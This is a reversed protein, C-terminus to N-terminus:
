ALRIQPNAVTYAIDALLNMMGVVGNLPTRIEHSMNAVFNSKMASAERAAIVDRESSRLVRRGLLLAAAAVLAFAIFLLWPVWKRPGSVSAFLPGDPASLVVRWTSNSLSVQDYYHHNADGSARSLVKVQEPRVFRYGAPRAPNNSALM